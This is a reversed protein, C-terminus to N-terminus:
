KAIGKGTLVSLLGAAGAGGGDITALIAEVLNDPLNIMAMEERIIGKVADRM